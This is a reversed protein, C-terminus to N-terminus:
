GPQQYLLLAGIRGEPCGLSDVLQQILTVSGSRDGPTREQPPRPARVRDAPPSLRFQNLCPLASRWMMRKFYCGANLPPCERQRLSKDPWHIPRTRSRLDGYEVHV